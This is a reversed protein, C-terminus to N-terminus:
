RRCIKKYDCYKCPDDNENEAKAVQTFPISTDFLETLTNNLETEFETMVESYFAIECDRSTDRLLPSYDESLMKSAFYLSPKVDVSHKRRLLMSYLLTQFINSIREKPKGNFLTAIGNYELHEKNGSKYDIVQLSGDALRDIRDARGSINVCIGNDLPYSYEVKDELGEITYGEHALDYRLIGSMIYKVIVDRVLITDGSFDAETTANGGNLLKSITTSVEREILEKNLLMKIKAHPKDTGKIDTYLREMTEHLINGFTLADITDEIEDPTKIKAISALYFKMPCEIYRFLATPSLSYGSKPTIYRKLAAEVEQSKEIVIQPTESVGLDVGIARRSITYPSEYELQYIYRSREGTSKEDAKSCYLMEIREARQVLRYFYYAYMAEHQEPTPLGYALRLGYPIFSPQETRDGPFTADTMSLIIVNKFDINRTELIGMIQIGEIPEGEFPISQTQLHRRLLSVFVNISPALPKSTEEEIISCSKISLMTKRVEDITIRLYERQVTNTADLTSYLKTLAEIIYHSLSSWDDCKAGFITSLVENEAFLKADVSTIKNSVIHAALETAADGCRDIIYPHSLLGTVDAHYYLTSEEKTRSHTQLAILRELLSYALTTKLPYGMTVNVSGVSEPLSHLLPILLNEDTLVIATRKDLEEKPLSNIIEAIHKVQVINSVCATTRFEKNMNLFNDHSINHTAPHRAINRRLFHGAEHSDENVYYNDYDWYFEAGNDRSAIYKFLIEESKTLANFGVLVYRRNDLGIDEGREIREATTRYILGPYAIGLEVLRERYEKYIKPLSRWVKLFFQKQKSLSAEPGISNWFSLLIKEQEPTLYSVDSEIEKIDTINRLLQDADVLYKDIMDFDNILMDGWFYFRDFTESPHYKHYISFLESILRIKEGRKLGAGREMLEDITSWATQWIPTDVFSAIAENFFTRARLSPFMVVLHSLDNSYHKLLTQAVEQLFSKM